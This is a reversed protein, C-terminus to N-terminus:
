KQKINEDIEEEVVKQQERRRRENGKEKEKKKRIRTNTEKTQIKKKLSTRM